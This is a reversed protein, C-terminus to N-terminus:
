RLYFEEGFNQNWDRVKMVKIKSSFMKGVVRKLKQLHIPDVKCHHSFNLTSLYLKNGCYTQDIVPLESNCVSNAPNEQKCCDPISQCYINNEALTTLKDCDRRPLIYYDTWMCTICM